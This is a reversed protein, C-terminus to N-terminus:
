VIAAVVVALLPVINSHTTVLEEPLTVLLMAVNVTLEDVLVAVVGEVGTTAIM